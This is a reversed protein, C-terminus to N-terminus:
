HLTPKNGCCQKFKMNFILLKYENMLPLFNPLIVGRLLLQAAGEPRRNM